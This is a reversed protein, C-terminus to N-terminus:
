IESAVYVQEYLEIKIKPAVFAKKYFFVDM